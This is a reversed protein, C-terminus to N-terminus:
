TIIIVLLFNLGLMSCLYPHCGLEMLIMTTIPKTNANCISPSPSIMAVRWCNFRGQHTSSCKKEKSTCSKTDGLLYTQALM